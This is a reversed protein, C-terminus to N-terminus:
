VSEPLKNLALSSRLHGIAVEFREASMEAYGLMQLTLARDLSQDQVAGLLLELEEIAAEINDQAMMEQAETLKNFTKTTISDAASPAGFASMAVMVILIRVKSM